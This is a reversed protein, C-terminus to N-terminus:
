EFGDIGTTLFFDQLFYQLANGQRQWTGVDKQDHEIAVTAKRGTFLTNKQLERFNKIVLVIIGRSTQEVEDDYDESVNLALFMQLFEQVSCGWRQFVQQLLAVVSYHTNVVLSAVPSFLNVLENLYGNQQKIIKM